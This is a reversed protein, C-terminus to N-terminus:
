TSPRAGSVAKEIVLRIGELYKQVTYGGEITNRAELGMLERLNTNEKLEIMKETMANVDREAVLFGNRANKIVDPIGGHVTSVVPLGCAGAELVALPTGESDGTGTSVSHQVFVHASSMTAAVHAPELVGLFTVFEAINLEDVLTKCADLLDGDGIMLLRVDSHKQIVGAFAKITIQPAKKAVFRGCAVFTFDKYKTNGPKFVATDVGYPLLQIKGDKCGLKKIQEQMHESVVIISAAKTFLEAYKKGYSGLVDARYADYGHFHVVFPLRLKTCIDMTEVGSPGYECLVVDIKNQLLYNQIGKLKNEAVDTKKHLLKGILGEKPLLSGHRGDHTYKGPLYGDYLIHVRAAPLRYHAHIFTESYKDLNTSIVAITLGDKM